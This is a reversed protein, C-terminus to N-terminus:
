TLVANAAMSSKIEHLSISIFISSFRDQVNFWTYPSICSIERLHIGPIPIIKCHNKRKM